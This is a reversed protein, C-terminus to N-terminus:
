VKWQHHCKMWISHVFSPPIGLEAQTLGETEQLFHLFPGGIQTLYRPDGRISLDHRALHSLFRRWLGEGAYGVRERELRRRRPLGRQVGVGRHGEGCGWSGPLVTPSRPSPSRSGLTGGPSRGLSSRACPVSASGASRQGRGRGRRWSAGSRGGRPSRPACVSPPCRPPRPSGWPGRRRRLTSPSPPPPPPKPPSPSSPSRGRRRWAPCWPRRRRRRWVGARCWGGEGQSQSGGERKSNDWSHRPISWFGPWFM